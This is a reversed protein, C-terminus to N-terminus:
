HLPKNAPQKPLSGNRSNSEEHDYGGLTLTRFSPGAPIGPNTSSNTSEGDISGGKGALDALLNPFVEVQMQSQRELIYTASGAVSDCLRQAMEEAENLQALPGQWTSDGSVAYDNTTEILDSAGSPSTLSRDFFRCLKEYLDLLATDHELLTRDIEALRKLITENAAIHKRLRVFAGIVFVSMHVARGSRLINAAMLAGHETFAWPHLATRWPFRGWHAVLYRDEHFEINKQNSTAFQSRLNNVEAPRSNFHLIKPFVDAIAGLHKTSFKQRWGMYDPWIRIM